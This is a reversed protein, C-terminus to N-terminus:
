AVISTEPGRPIGPSSLLLAVLMLSVNASSKRDRQGRQPTRRHRRPQVQMRPSGAVRLVRAFPMRIVASVVTLRELWRWVMPMCVLMLQGGFAAALRAVAFSRRLCWMAIASAEADTASASGLSHVLYACSVGNDTSSAVTQQCIIKDQFSKGTGPGIWSVLRRMCIRRSASPMVYLVDLLLAQCQSSPGGASLVVDLCFTHEHRALAVANERIGHM